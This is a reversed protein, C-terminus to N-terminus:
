RINLHYPELTKQLRGNDLRRRIIVWVNSGKGRRRGEKRRPIDQIGKYTSVKLKTKVGEVDYL